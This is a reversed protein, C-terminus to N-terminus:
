AMSAMKRIEALRNMLSTNSQTVHMNYDAQLEIWIPAVIGLSDKLLLAM